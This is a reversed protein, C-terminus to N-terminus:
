NSFSEQKLAQAMYSNGEFSAPEVEDWGDYFAAVRSETAEELRDMQDLV